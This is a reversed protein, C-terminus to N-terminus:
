SGVVKVVYTLSIDGVRGTLRWCGEDPFTVASAWSGRGDSSYGWNVSLVRMQGPADLREGRVTLDGSFGKRPLWPLKQFLTGDSDRRAVLVGEHGPVTTSLFGNGYRGKTVPCTESASPMEISLLQLHRFRGVGGPAVPLVFFTRGFSYRACGPCWAAAAYSDTDLPPLAFTLLGRSKRDPVIQGVFHLRRDLRTKVEEAVRNPVLYVRIPRQFPREGQALRFGPPTGGLRVTVLEGPKAVTPQFLLFLAAQAFSAVVASSVVAALVFVGVRRV